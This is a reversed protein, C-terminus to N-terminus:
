SAEDECKGRMLLPTTTIFVREYQQADRLTLAVRVYCPLPGAEGGGPPWADHEGEADYATVDLGVVLDTMELKNGGAERDDDLTCDETRFLAVKDQVNRDLFYAVDCLEGEPRKETFRRYPITVFRVRDAAHEALENNESLFTTRPDDQYWIAGSIEQTIRQMAARGVRYVDASQRGKDVGDAVAAFSAFVVAAITAFIALALLVEILTFGSQRAWRLGNNHRM